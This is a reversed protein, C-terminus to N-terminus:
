KGTYNIGIMVAHKKGKIHRPVLDFETKIDLPRSSSLQPNQNYGNEKLKARLKKLVKQFSMRKQNEELVSLLASTCAGGPQGHADPLRFKKGVNKM